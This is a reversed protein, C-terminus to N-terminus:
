FLRTLESIEDSSELAAKLVLFLWCKPWMIINRYGFDLVINLRM